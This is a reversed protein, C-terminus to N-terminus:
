TEVGLLEWILREVERVDEESAQGILGNAILAATAETATSDPMVCLPVRGGTSPELGVMVLRPKKGIQTDWEGWAVIGNSAQENKM